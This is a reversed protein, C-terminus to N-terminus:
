GGLDMMEEVKGATTKCLGATRTVSMGKMGTGVGEKTM